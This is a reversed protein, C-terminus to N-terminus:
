FSTELMIELLLTNDQSWIKHPFGLVYFLNFTYSFLQVQTLFNTGPLVARSVKQRVCGYELDARELLFMIHAVHRIKFRRSVVKTFLLTRLSVSAYPVPLLRTASHNLLQPHFLNFLIILMLTLKKKLKLSEKTWLKVAELHGDLHWVNFHDKPACQMVWAPCLIAVLM